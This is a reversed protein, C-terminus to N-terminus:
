SLFKETFIRIERSKRERRGEGRGQWPPLLLLLCMQLQFPLLSYETCFPAVKKNEGAKAAGRMVVRRGHERDHFAVSCIWCSSYIPPVRKTRGPTFIPFHCFEDNKVPYVKKPRSKRAPYNHLLEGSFAYFFPMFFHLRVFFSEGQEM